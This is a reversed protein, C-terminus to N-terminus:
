HRRRRLFLSGAAVGILAFTAPEPVTTVGIHVGNKFITGVAGGDKEGTLQNNFSFTVKTIQNSGYQTALDIVGTGTWDDEAPSDTEGPVNLFFEQSPTYVVTGNVQTPTVPAGNVEVVRAFLQSTDVKAYASGPSLQSQQLAYGGFEYLDIATIYQGPKAEITLNLQGQTFDSVFSTGSGQAEAFFSLQDFILTDGSTFPTNFLPTPELTSESITVFDVTSGSEPAYTYVAGNAIGGLTSVALAFVSTAKMM